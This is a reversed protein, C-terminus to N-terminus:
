GDAGRFLERAIARGFRLTGAVPAGSTRSLANLPRRGRDAHHRADHVVTTERSDDTV